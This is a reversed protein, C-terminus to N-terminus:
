MEKEKKRKGKKKKELPHPFPITSNSFSALHGEMKRIKQQLFGMNQRTAWFIRKKDKFGLLKPISHRSKLWQLDNKGPM